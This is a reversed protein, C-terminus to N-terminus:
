GWGFMLFGFLEDTTKQPTHALLAVEDWRDKEVVSRIYVDSVVAEDVAVEGSQIGSANLAALADEDGPAAILIDGAHHIDRTADQALRLRLPAGLLWHTSGDAYPSPLAAEQPRARRAIWDLHERIFRL